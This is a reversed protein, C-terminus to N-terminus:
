LNILSLDTNIWVIRIYVIFKTKTQIVCFVKKKSKYNMELGKQGQPVESCLLITEYTSWVSVGSLKHIM